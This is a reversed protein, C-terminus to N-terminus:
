IYKELINIPTEIIMKNIEEKTKKINYFSLYKIVLEIFINKDLININPEYFRQNIKNYCSVIFNPGNDFYYRIKGNYKKKNLQSYGSKINYNNMRLEELNDQKFDDYIMHEFPSENYIKHQLAKLLDEKTPTYAFEHTFEFHIIHLYKKELGTNLEIKNIIDNSEQIFRCYMESDFLLNREMKSYNKNASEFRRIHNVDHYFYDLPSNIYGDAKELDFNIGIIGLPYPRIYNLDEITIKEITPFYIYNMNHINYFHYLYRDSHYHNYNNNIFLPELLSMIKEITYLSPLYPYELEYPPHHPYNNQKIDFNHKISYLSNCIIDYHYPIIDKEKNNIFDEIKDFVISLEILPTNELFPSEIFRNIIKYLNKNM